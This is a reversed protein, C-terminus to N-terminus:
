RQIYLGLVLRMWVDEGCTGARHNELSMKGAFFARNMTSAHHWEDLFGASDRFHIAPYHNLADDAFTVREANSRFWFEDLLGCSPVDVSPTLM